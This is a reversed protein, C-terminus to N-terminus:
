WPVKTSFLQSHVRSNTEPGELSDQLSGQHGLHYLIQRCHQLGLNSGQAPFIGQLFAHCGVGTNKGPSDGHVSSGSLSCDMPNCMSRRTSGWWYWTTKIVTTHHTKFDSLACWEVQGKKLIIKVTRLRKFKWTCILTLKDIETFFNTLIKISIANFRCTCKQLM